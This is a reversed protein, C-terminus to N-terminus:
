PTVRLAELDAFFGPYSKAVCSSGKIAVETRARLAAVACAMAIRHDNHSDVAGGAIAGGCIKMRDGAIEIIIGLKEFETRLAVARDSEKYALRDVGYIVSKGHCCSALVVLPPFLDPCSSADFEFPRLNGSQVSVHDARTEVAAGAITLVELIARDAQLSVPSLGTVTVTGAIAGAVLLFSAGSWDGEVTYTSPQYAQGGDVTFEELRDDHGIRVGFASLLQITMRVYPTSKLHSALIRSPAECLPLAMFLGTLLQSSVSADIRIDGGTIPGKISIPAHGSETRVTAGLQELAGVMDMPRTRLSGSALLTTERPLLGAIPAFMRMSLGSEGCDLLDDQAKLSGKGTGRITFVNRQEEVAAGLRGIIAAATVGDDCLSVNRIRTLGRALLAAALARVTMSKSSPAPLQGKIRSPAIFKM